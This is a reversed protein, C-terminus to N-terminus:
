CCISCKKGTKQKKSFATQLKRYTYISYFTYTNKLFFANQQTTLANQQTTQYTKKKVWCISGVFM